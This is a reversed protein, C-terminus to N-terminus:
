KGNWLLVEKRRHGIGGKATLELMHWGQFLPLAAPSNSVLVREARANCWAAFREHDFKVGYNHAGVYPPDCYITNVAADTAIDYGDFPDCYERASYVEVRSMDPLEPWGVKARAGWPVNFEGKSNERYLGRWCTRNLYLFNVAQSKPGCTRRNFSDRVKVYTDADIPWDSMTGFSFGGKVQAWFNMLPACRDSIVSEGQYNLSVVASGCFPEWLTGHIHPLIAPLLDFKSGSWLLPSRIM